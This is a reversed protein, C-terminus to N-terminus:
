LYEQAHKWGHAKKRREQIWRVIKNTFTILCLLLNLIYYNLILVRREACESNTRLPLFLLSSVGAIVSCICFSWSSYLTSTVSVLPDLSAFTKLTIIIKAHKNFNKHFWLGRRQKLGRYCERWRFVSAWTWIKVRAVIRHKSELGLKTWHSLLTVFVQACM